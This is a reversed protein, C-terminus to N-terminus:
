RPPPRVARLIAELADLGATLAGPGPQLIISSDIEHVRGDRIAPVVAWGARAPPVEPEFPKGCWSALLVDPAREIVEDSTVTRGSAKRHPARDAFVAEGGALEVLESM